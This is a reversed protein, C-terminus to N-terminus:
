WHWHHSSSKGLRRDHDHYHPPFIKGTPVTPKSNYDYEPQNEHIEGIWEGTDKDYVPTCDMGDGAAGPATEGKEGNVDELLEEESGVDHWRSKRSVDVVAGEDQNEVAKMVARYISTYAQYKVNEIIVYAGVVVTVCWGFIVYDVEIASSRMTMRPAFETNYSCEVAKMNPTSDSVKILKHTNLIEEFEEISMEQENITVRTDQRYNGSAAFSTLSSTAIMSFVLLLTTFKRIIKKM